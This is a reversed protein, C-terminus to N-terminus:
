AVAKSSEPAKVDEIVVTSTRPEQCNKILHGLRNCRYCRAKTMDFGIRKKPDFTLTRGPKKQYKQMRYSVMAMQWELDMREIDDEDGQLCDEATVDDQGIEGALLGNFSSIFSAFM